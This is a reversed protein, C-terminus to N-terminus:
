KLFEIVSQLNVNLFVYSLLVLVLIIAFLMYNSKKKASRGEARYDMKSGRRGGARFSGALNGKVDDASKLHKRSELDALRQEIREKEPDWFRPKYDYQNPDPAHLFKFLAM